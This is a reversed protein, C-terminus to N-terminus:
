IHEAQARKYDLYGQLIFAAAVAHEFNKDIQKRGWHLQQAQKSSFREDWLQWEVLSFREALQNKHDIVKKTQESQTGRLTKPEGVVITSIRENQLLSEIEGNLDATKVTKLPRALLGSADSIAIGTWQDGIDLGLVKSVLQETHNERYAEM